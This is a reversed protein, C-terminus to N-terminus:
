FEPLLEPKGDGVILTVRPGGGGGFVGLGWLQGRPSGSPATTGGRGAAPLTVM